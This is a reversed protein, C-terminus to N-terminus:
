LPLLQQAVRGPVLSSAPAMGQGEKGTGIGVGAHGRANVDQWRLSESSLNELM